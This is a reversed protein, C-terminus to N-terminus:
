ESTSETISYLVRVDTSIICTDNDSLVSECFLDATQVSSNKVFYYHHLSIYLAPTTISILINWKTTEIM